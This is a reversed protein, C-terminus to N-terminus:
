HKGLVHDPGQNLIRQALEQEMTKSLLLVNRAGPGRVGDLIRGVMGPDNDCDLLLLDISESQIMALTELPDNVTVVYGISGLARRVARIVHRDLSVLHVRPRDRANM